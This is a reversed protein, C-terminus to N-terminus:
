SGTPLYFLFLLKRKLDILQIYIGLLFTETAPQSSVLVSDYMRSKLIFNLAFITTNYCPFIVRAISRKRIITGDILHTLIPPLNGKINM